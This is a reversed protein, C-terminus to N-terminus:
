FRKFLDLKSESSTLSKCSEYEQIPKITIIKHCPEDPTLQSELTRQLQATGQSICSPPFLNGDRGHSPPYKQQLSSQQEYPVPSPIVERSCLLRWSDWCCCKSTAWFSTNEAAYVVKPLYMRSQKWSQALTRHLGSPLKHVNDWMEAQIWMFRTIM